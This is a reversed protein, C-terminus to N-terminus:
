ERHMKDGPGGDDIRSNRTTREQGADDFWGNRELVFAVAAMLRTM